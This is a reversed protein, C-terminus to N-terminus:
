KAGRHLPWALHGIVVGVSVGLVPFDQMWKQWHFSVSSDPPLFFFSYVDYAGVLLLNGLLWSAVIFGANM